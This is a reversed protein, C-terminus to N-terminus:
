RKQDNQWDELIADLLTRSLLRLEIIMWILAGITTVSDAVDLLRVLVNVAQEDM